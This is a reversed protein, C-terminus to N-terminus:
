KLKGGIYGSGLGVAFGEIRGKWRAAKIASMQAEMAIRDCERAKHEETYASRWSDRAATLTLVNAKLDGIQKAQAEILEDQKAVLPALDVPVGVPQPEQVPKPIPNIPTNVAASAKRLRAVEVRLRQIEADDAQITPNQAAAQSDYVAGQAAHNTGVQDHQAAQFAAAKAKHDLYCSRGYLGAMVLVVGAVTPKIWKPLTIGWEFPTM